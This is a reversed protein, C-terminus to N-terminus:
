QGEGSKIEVLLHGLDGLIYNIRGTNMSIGAASYRSDYEIGFGNFGLFTAAKNEKWKIWM